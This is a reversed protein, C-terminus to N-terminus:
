AGKVIASFINFAKFFKDFEISKIKLLKKKKNISHARRIDKQITYMFTPHVSPVVIFKPRKTEQLCKAVIQHANVGFTWIPIFNEVSGRSCELIKKFIFDLVPKFAELLPKTQNRRGAILPIRLWLLHKDEQLTALKKLMATKFHCDDFFSPAGTSIRLNGEVSRYVYRRQLEIMGVVIGKVGSPTSTELNKFFIEECFSFFELDSCKTVNRVNAIYDNFVSQMTLHPPTTNEGNPPSSRSVSERNVPVNYLCIKHHPYVKM